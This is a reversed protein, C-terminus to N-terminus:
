VHNPDTPKIEITVSGTLTMDVLLQDPTAHEVVVSQTTGGATAGNSDVAVTTNGADASAPLLATIYGGDSALLDHAVIVDGKALDTVVDKEGTTSLNDALNIQIVDHGLGGTLTDNGAGGILTDNGAGGVLVDNGASGIITEAADGGKIVLGDSGASLAVTDGNIAGHTDIVVKVAIDGTLKDGDGDVVSVKLDIWVQDAKIGVSVTPAVSYDTGEAAQLQVRDFSQDATVTLTQTTSSYDITTPRETTDAVATAVAEGNAFPVLTFSATDINVAAGAANKVSVTLREGAGDDTTNDIKGDVVGIATITGSAPTTVVAETAPTSVFAPVTLDADKDATIELKLGSVTDTYTLKDTSSSSNIEDATFTVTQIPDIVVKMDAVYGATGDASVLGQITFAATEVGEKSFFAAINGDTMPKYYVANGGVTMISSAIGSPTNYSLYVYSPGAVSQGTVSVPAVVTLNVDSGIVDAGVRVGLDAAVEGVAANAVLTDQKDGSYVPADDQIKVNFGQLETSSGTTKKAVLQLYLNEQEGAGTGNTEVKYQNDVQGTLNVAYEGTTKDITVTMVDRDGAKGTMTAGDASVTFTVAVGGSTMKQVPALLSYSANGMGLTGSSATNNATGADLNGVLALGDEHITGLGTDSLDQGVNITLTAKATDGDGDTLTYDFVDKTGEGVYEEFSVTKVFYDSSDGGKSGAIYDVGSFVLNQFALPEGDSGLVEIEVQGQNNSTGNNFLVGGIIGEGVKHGLSDFAEWRGTEGVNGTQGSEDQFMRSVDVVARVAMKGLDLSLAESGQSPSYGIQSEVSNVVDGPMNINLNDVGLGNGDVTTSARGSSSIRTEGLDKSYAENYDFADRVATTFDLNTPSVVPTQDATYVYAGDSDITISGHAGQATLPNSDTETGAGSIGSVTAIDAGVSDAGAAANVTGAGTIVNGTAKHDAGVSDFDNRAIPVDDQVKVDLGVSVPDGDGDVGTISIEPLDLTNEGEGPAHNMAGLVTVTYSGDSKVEIQAAAGQSSDQVKGDADFYVTATGNVLQVAPGTGVSFETVSGFKDAGWSVVGTMTQVGTTHSLGDDTEDNGIVGKGDPVSEEELTATLRVDVPEEGETQQVLPVDDQM